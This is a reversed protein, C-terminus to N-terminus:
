ASGPSGERERWRAQCVVCTPWCWETKSWQERPVVIELGGLTAGKDLVLLEDSVAHRGGEHPFWRFMRMGMVARVGGKGCSRVLASGQREEVM